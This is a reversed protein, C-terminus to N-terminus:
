RGCRGYHEWVATNVALKINRRYKKEAAERQKQVRKARIKDFALVAIGTLEFIAIIIALVIHDQLQAM